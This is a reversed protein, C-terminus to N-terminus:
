KTKELIAAISAMGSSHTIVGQKWLTIVHTIERKAVVSKEAHDLTVKTVM